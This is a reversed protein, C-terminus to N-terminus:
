YNVENVYIKTIQSNQILESGSKSSDSWKKLTSLSLNKLFILTMFIFLSFLISCHTDTTYYHAQFREQSMTFQSVVTDLHM